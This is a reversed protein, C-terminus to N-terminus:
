LHTLPGAVVFRLQEGLTAFCAFLALCAGLLAVNRLFAMQQTQRQGPDEVRWYAHLLLGAPLVFAGLMLAGIDPWVGVAISAAGAALWLGSPWGGLYPLPVRAARSYEVRAAHGQIHGWASFAFFVVFLVRGVLLIAGSSVTM